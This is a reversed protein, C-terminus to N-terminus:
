THTEMTKKIAGDVFRILFSAVLDFTGLTAEVATGCAVGPTLLM